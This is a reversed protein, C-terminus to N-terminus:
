DPLDVGVDLYGGLPYCPTLEMPFPYPEIPHNSYNLALGRPVGKGERRVTM